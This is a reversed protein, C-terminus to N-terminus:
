SKRAVSIDRYVKSHAEIMRSKSCFDLARSRARQRFSAAFSPDELVRSLACALEAADGTRFLLGADGVVETFAGLDSAVVPLGRAMNEAAVLGFVEGGLSPIAIATVQSLAAELQEAGLQGCFLVKGDLQLHCALEELSSREPGDGIILLQFARNQGVLIKAAEILVRVGKTSVLRGVFALAPAGVAAANHERVQPFDLGHPIAEVNPLLLLSGLWETPTINAAAGGCLYRRAFTLLWLKPSALSGEAFNCRLCQSHRGAMFHGPCLTGTSEIFLQGNPCIAHFGHHEVVVPKGALRSLMLPALAPGAVHVLHSNRVLRFLQFLSPQRVVPFALERDDFTGGPTQTVLTIEFEQAGNADRREALGCALSRVVTEVGGVSPAFFHSYLLLKV